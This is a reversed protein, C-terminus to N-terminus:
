SQAPVIGKIYTPEVPHRGYWKYRSAFADKATQPMNRDFYVILTSDGSGVAQLWSKFLPNSSLEAQLKECLTSAQKKDM